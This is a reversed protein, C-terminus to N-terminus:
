KAARGIHLRVHPCLYCVADVDVVVAVTVQGGRTLEVHLLGGGLLLVCAKCDFTLRTVRVKNGFRGALVSM